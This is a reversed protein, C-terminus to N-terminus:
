KLELTGDHVWQDLIREIPYVEPSMEDNIPIETLLDM